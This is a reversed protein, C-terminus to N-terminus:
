FLPSIHTCIASESRQVVCVLLANYFLLSWYFNQFYVSLAIRSAGVRSVSLLFTVTTQGSNERLESERLVLM